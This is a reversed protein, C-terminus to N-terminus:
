RLLIEIFQGAATAGQLADGMPHSPLNSGVLIGAGNAASSTVATAGSVVALAVGTVARGQNDSVVTAGVAVAGGSEIIATGRAIVALEEGAGEANHRAVGLAKAGAAAVQAGAFTVFRRATVAGTTRVRLTLTDIYQTM